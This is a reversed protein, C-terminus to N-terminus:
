EPAKKLPCWEPPPCNAGVYYHEFPVGWPQAGCTSPESSMGGHCCMPCDGCTKVEIVRAARAPIEIKM